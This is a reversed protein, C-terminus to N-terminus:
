TSLEPKNTKSITSRASKGASIIRMEKSINVSKLLLILGTIGGLSIFIYFPLLPDANTKNIMLLITGSSLVLGYATAKVLLIASLVIGWPKKNWLWYGAIICAPFVLTLDLAYVISTPHNSKNVIEPLTGTFSFEIYPPVEVAILMLGILFLYAAIWHHHRTFLKLRQVPLKQLLAVMAWISSAIIGVYVIFNVNFAAGMLYFAYNYILYGLIGAWVLIIRLNARVTLALLFVPVVLLLTVWDNARWATEVFDNDRYVNSFLGTTTAVVVLMLAVWSLFEAPSLSFYKKVYNRASTTTKWLFDKRDRKLVVWAAWSVLLPFPFASGVMLPTIGLLFIIAGYCALRVWLGKLLMGIGILMQGAAILPVMIHNYQSFWGNIFDRYFPLAMKSYELYVDPNSFGASFNTISAGIFIVSFLLRTIRTNKYVIMLFIIAVVQSILYPVLYQNINNM